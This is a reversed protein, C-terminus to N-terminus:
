LCRRSCSTPFESGAPQPGSLASSQSGAAEMGVAVPSNPHWKSTPLHSLKRFVKGFVLAQVACHVILHHQTQQALDNKQSPQRYKDRVPASKAQLRELTDPLVAWFCVEAQTGPAGEIYSASTCRSVRRNPAAMIEWSLLTFRVCWKGRVM